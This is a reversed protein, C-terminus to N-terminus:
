RGEDPDSVVLGVLEFRPDEIVQSLAIRGVNGTAIHIIKIPVANEQTTLARGRHPDARRPRHDQAAPPRHGQGRGERPQRAAEVGVLDVIAVGRDTLLADFSEKDGVPDPLRGEYYDDILATATEVACTRNTGIVGSPGRKAWGTTYVRAVLEGSGPDTVRGGDNAFRGSQEDFPVGDVATSHYGTARLM